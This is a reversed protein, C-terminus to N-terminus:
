TLLGVEQRSEKGDAETEVENRKQKVIELLINPYVKIFDYLISENGGILGHEDSIYEYLKVSNKKNWIGHKAKLTIELGSYSLCIIYNGCDIRKFKMDIPTLIDNFQDIIGKIIITQKENASNYRKRAYKIKKMNEDIETGISM